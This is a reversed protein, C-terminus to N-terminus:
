CLTRYLSMRVCGKEFIFHSKCGSLRRVSPRITLKKRNEIKYRWCPSAAELTNLKIVEGCGCPCEFMILWFHDGEGILYVKDKSLEDPIEISFETEYEVKQVSGENLDQTNSKPKILSRVWGWVKLLKHPVSNMM